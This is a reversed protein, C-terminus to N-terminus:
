HRFHRQGTLLMAMDYEDAAAIVENDRLSGGPQIVATAGAKAAEILGDAFPYFADSAVVAGQTRRAVEGAAHGMEDAKRIANLTADVRSMQGAGVGIIQQNKAFVIANSKVYKSIVWAFHLDKLENETPSRRSVCQPEDAFLSNDQSQVLLGGHVSRYTHNEHLNDMQPFALLRLNKKQSLIDMAEKSFCPAIIVELFMEHMKQATSANLERNFAVIGGFASVPDAALAKHWAGDIDAALAAGCPNAHKVIICAPEKFEAVMSLAADGDNINNYSLAKGALQKADALGLESNRSKYFAAQQHPNEGYRLDYQKEYSLSLKQPLEQGIQGNLWTSIASDYAASLCFAKAAMKRRFKQCTTNGEHQELDGMLKAYDCPDCIVTVDKHNKAASRLMSPGGIDIKEVLEEYSGGAKLTDEFPYLNVVVLGISPIDYEKMIQLDAKYDRRALIGGHIRPHLSKVRGDFIEPFQTIDSVDTVDMGAERIAQASGGTSLIKIKKKTLFRALEILGTKDYVSILAHTISM